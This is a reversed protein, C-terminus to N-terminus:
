YLNFNLNLLDSDFADILFSIQVEDKETMSLIIQKPSNQKSRTAQLSAFMGVLDVVLSAVWPTWSRRGYKKMFLVYIFPRLIFLVEGM